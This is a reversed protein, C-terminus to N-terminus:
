PRRSPTSAISCPPSKGGYRAGDATLLVTPAIQGFRDLVGSTGFDPSSSSFIAGLSSAALMAVVTEVRNPM